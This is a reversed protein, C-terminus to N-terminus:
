ELLQHLTVINGDPDKVYALICHGNDEPEQLFPVKAKKLKKCLKDMDTVEFAIAGTVKLKKFYAPTDKRSEWVAFAVGAVDYEEWRGAYAGTSKLGLLGKYFKRARALDSVQHSAYALGKIAPPTKKKRATKKLTAM